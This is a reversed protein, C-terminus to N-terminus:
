IPIMPTIPIMPIMFGMMGIVGMRGMGWFADEGWSSIWVSKAGVLFGFDDVVDGIAKRVLVEGVFVAGDVLHDL